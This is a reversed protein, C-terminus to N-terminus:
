NYAANEGKEVGLGEAGRKIYMCMHIYMPLNLYIPSHDIEKCVAVRVLKLVDSPNSNLLLGM